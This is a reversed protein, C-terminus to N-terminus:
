QSINRDNNASEAIQTNYEQSTLLTVIADKMDPYKMYFLLDHVDKSGIVMGGKSEKGKMEHQRIHEQEIENDLILSQMCIEKIPQMALEEMTFKRGYILEFLHCGGAMEYKVLQFAM